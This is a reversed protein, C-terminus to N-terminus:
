RSTYRYSKRTLNESLRTECGPRLRPATDVSRSAARMRYHSIAPLPEKM